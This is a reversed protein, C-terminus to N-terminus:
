SLPGCASSSELNRNLRVISFSVVVSQMKGINKPTKM